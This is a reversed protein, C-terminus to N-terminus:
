FFRLFPAAFNQGPEPTTIQEFSGDENMKINQVSIVYTATDKGVNALNIEQSKKSGEFIVRLPSILLDGQANAKAGACLLVIGCVFTKITIKIANVGPKTILKSM